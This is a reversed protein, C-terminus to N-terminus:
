KVVRGFQREAHPVTHPLFDGDRLHHHFDDPVYIEISETM